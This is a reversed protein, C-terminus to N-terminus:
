RAAGHLWPPPSLDSVLLLGPLDGPSKQSMTLLELFGRHIEATFDRRPRDRRHARNAQRPRRDAAHQDSLSYSYRRSIHRARQDANRFEGKLIGKPM